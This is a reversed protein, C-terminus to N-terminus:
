GRSTRTVSKALRLKPGCHLPNEHVMWVEVFLLIVCVLIVLGVNMAALTRVLGVQDSLTDLKSTSLTTLATVQDTLNSLKGNSVSTLDTVQQELRDSARNCRRRGASGQYRICQISIRPQGDHEQLMELGLRQQERVADKISEILHHWRRNTNRLARAREFAFGFTAPKRNGQLNNQHELWALFPKALPRTPRNFRKLANM